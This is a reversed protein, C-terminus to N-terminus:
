RRGSHRCWRELGQTLAVHLNLDAAMSELPEFGAALARQKARRVNDEADSGLLYLAYIPAFEGALLCDLEDFVAVNESSERPVANPYREARSRSTAILFDVVAHNPETSM